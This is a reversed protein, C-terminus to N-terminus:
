LLLGRQGKPDTTKPCVYLREHMYAYLHGSNGAGFLGEPFLDQDLSATTFKGM